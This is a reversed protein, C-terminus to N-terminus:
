SKVESLFPYTKYMLDIVRLKKEASLQGELYHVDRIFQAQLPQPVKSKEKQLRYSLYLLQGYHEPKMAHPEVNDYWNLLHAITLLASRISDYNTFSYWQYLKKIGIGISSAAAGTPICTILAFNVQNQDVIKKVQAILEDSTLATEALFAKIAPQVGNILESKVKETGNDMIQVSIELLSIGHSVLHGVQTNLMGLMGSNAVHVDDTLCQNLCRLIFGRDLTNVCEDIKERTVFELQYSIEVMKQQRRYDLYRNVVELYANKLEEDTLKSNNGQMKQLAAELSNSVANALENISKKKRPMGPMVSGRRLVPNLFPFAECLADHPTKFFKQYLDKQASDIFTSIDVQNKHVYYTFYSLLSLSGSLFLWNRVFINPIQATKLALRTKEEYRELKICLEKMVPTLKDFNSLHEVSLQQGRIIQYPISLLEVLWVYQQAVSSQENFSNIKVSWNGLFEFLTTQLDHLFTLKQEIEEQQPNGVFWKVPSKHFFYYVQHHQQEQWYVEYRQLRDLLTFILKRVQQDITVVVQLLLSCRVSEFEHLDVQSQLRQSQLRGCLQGITILQDTIEQFFFFQMRQNPKVLNLLEELALDQTMAHLKVEKRINEVYQDILKAFVNSDHVHAATRIDNKPSADVVSAPRFFPPQVETVCFILPVYM